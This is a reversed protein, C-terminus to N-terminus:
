HERVEKGGSSKKREFMMVINHVSVIMTCHCRSVQEAEMEEVTTQQEASEWRTEIRIQEDIAKQTLKRTHAEPHAHSRTRKSLSSKEDGAVTM